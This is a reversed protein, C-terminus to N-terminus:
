AYNYKRARGAYTDTNIRCSHCLVRGNDIDTSLNKFIAMPKIHDVELNKKQGCIQCTYNDRELVSKRWRKYKSTMRADWFKQTLGGQWNWHKEAQIKPNLKGKNWPIHGKKFETKLFSHNGKKFSTKNAKMKPMLHNEWRQRTECSKCRKADYWIIKPCNLCHPKGGKWNPNNSGRMEFVQPKEQKTSLRTEPM